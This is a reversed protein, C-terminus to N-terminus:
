STARNLETEVESQNVVDTEVSVVPEVFVIPETSTAHGDM